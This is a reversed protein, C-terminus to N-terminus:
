PYINAKSYKYVKAFETLLDEAKITGKRAGEEGHECRQCICCFRDSFGSIKNPSPNYINHITQHSELGTSNSIPMSRYPEPKKEHFNKPMIDYQTSNLGM